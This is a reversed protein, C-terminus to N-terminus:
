SLVRTVRLPVGDEPGMTVNRRVRKSPTPSETELEVRSLLTALFIRAEHESFAAGLCRRHGGGFPLFETPAPRRELFREPRFTAPDAYIAPDRHIGEILVIVPTGAPVVLGPELEFPVRALRPADTVVPSIRMTEDIVAGVYPLKAIAEPDTQGRVEETLRALVAPRRLAHDLVWALSIATTEHGAVLMTLLQDRIEETDMPAGDDYKAELLLSLVDARRDLGGAARRSAILRDLAEYFATRAALYRRFPPFWPTQLVPAFVALPSFGDLMGLLITRLESRADVGFVTRLIVALTFETTLEHALFRQGQRLRSVHELAIEKMQEGFARLRPGHLPPTLLKRQRKHEPGHTVLVSRAGLVGSLSVAAFTAFTEPDAAFIKKAHEPSATALIPGALSKMWHTRGYRVINRQVADEPDFAYHLMQAIAPRRPGLLTLPPM